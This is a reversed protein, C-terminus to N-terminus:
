EVIIGHEYLTREVVLGNHGYLLQWGDRVGKSGIQEIFEILGSSRYGITICYMGIICTEFTSLKGDEYYNRVTAGSLPEIRIRELFTSDISLFDMGVYTVKNPVILTDFYSIRYNGNGSDGRKKIWNPNVETQSWLVISMISFCLTLGCKKIGLLFLEDSGQCYNNVTKKRNQNKLSNM